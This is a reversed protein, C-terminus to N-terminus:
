VHLILKLCGFCPLGWELTSRWVHIYGFNNVSITECRCITGTAFFQLTRPGLKPKVELMWCLNFRSLFVSFWMVHASLLFLIYIYQINMIQVFIDSNLWTKLYLFWLLCFCKYTEVKFDSDHNEFVINLIYITGPRVKEFLENWHGMRQLQTWCTLLVFDCDNLSRVLFHM